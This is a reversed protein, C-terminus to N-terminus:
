FEKGKNNSDQSGLDAVYQSVFYAACRIGMITIRGEYKKNILEIFDNALDNAIKAQKEGLLEIATRGEM